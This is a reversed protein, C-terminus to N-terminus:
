VRNKWRWRPSGLNNLEDLSDEDGLLAYKHWLPSLEKMWESSNFHTSGIGIIWAKEGGTVRYLVETWSERVVTDATGNFFLSKGKVSRAIQAYDPRSMGSAAQNPILSQRKDAWRRAALGGCVVTASGGQSHGQIGYVEQAINPQRFGWELGEMCTKGSGTQTNEPWVVAFGAAALATAERAYYISPAGTGNNGAILIAKCDADPRLWMGRGKYKGRDVRYTDGNVCTDLEPAPEPEPAPRPKRPPQPVPIPLPFPEPRVEPNKPLESSCGITSVLTITIFTDLLKKM